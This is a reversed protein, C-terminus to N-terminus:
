IANFLKHYNLWAYYAASVTYVISTGSVSITGSAVGNNLQLQTLYSTGSSDKVFIFTAYNGTATSATACSKAHVIYVGDTTILSTLDATYTSGLTSGDILKTGVLALRGGDSDEQYGTFKVTSVGSIINQGFKDGTALYIANATSYLANVMNGDIFNNQSTVAADAVSVDYTATGSTVVGTGSYTAANPTTGGGATTETLTFTASSSSVTYTGTITTNSGLATAINAVTLAITAGIAFQTSNTTSATATLTVGEVTLTDGAVFNTTVTYTMAGAVVTRATSDLTYIGKGSYTATDPTTINNNEVNVNKCGELKIAAVSSGGTYGSDVITNNSISGCTANRARIFSNVHAGQSSVNKIDVLSAKDIDFYAVDVLSGNTTISGGNWTFRTLTCNQAKIFAHDNFLQCDFYEVYGTCTDFLQKGNYFSCDRFTLMLDVNKALVHITSADFECNEFYILNTGTESTDYGTNDISVANPSHQFCCDTVRADMTPEMFQLCSGTHGTPLGDGSPSTYNTNPSSYWFELNEIRVTTYTVRKSGNQWRTMKFISKDYNANGSAWEMLIRTHSVTNTPAGLGRITMGPYITIPNQIKYIGDPFEIICHPFDGVHPFAHDFAAGAADVIAQIQTDCFTAGTRDAAVLPSPPYAVNYTWDGKKVTSSLTSAATTASTASETASTASATASSAANTASTAANSESTAAAAASAAASIYAEEPDTTYEFATADSNIRLAKLAVPAPLVRSFDDPVSIAFQMARDIQEQQQQSIMTIRDFSREVVKPKLSTNNPYVTPQLVDLTRLIALKYASTIATGVAPYTVTGSSSPYEGESPTVTFNSTLETETGTSVEILFIHLDDEALVDFTYDFTTTTGNGVYIHKNLTSSLSM